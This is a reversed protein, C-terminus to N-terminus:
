ALESVNCEKRKNEELHKSLINVIRTKGIVHCQMHHRLRVISAAADNLVPSHDTKSWISSLLYYWPQLVCHLHLRMVGVVSICIRVYSWAFSINSSDHSTPIHFVVSIEICCTGTQSPCCYLTAVACEATENMLIITSYILSVADILILFPLFRLFM